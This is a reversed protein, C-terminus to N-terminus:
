ILDGALCLVTLSRHGRNIRTPPDNKQVSGETAFASIMIKVGARVDVLVSPDFIQFTYLYFHFKNFLLINTQSV